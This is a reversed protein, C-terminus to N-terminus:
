RVGITLSVNEKKGNLLDITGKVLYTGDSVARGKNDTLNWSGVARKDTASVAAKDRVNITTVRNGLADYVYLSASKIGKGRWFFNVSGSQRYVPSPGATLEYRSQSVPAIISVGDPQNQQPIVRNSAAVSVFESEDRICTFDKWYNASEYAARYEQPVYLCVDNGIGVFTQVTVVPPYRGLSIIATLNPCSMAVGTGITAVDESFRITKLATCNFFAGDGVTTVGSPIDIFTLGTCGSFAQTKITIVSNPINISTLGTCGSFTFNEIVTISSPITISMLNKCDLFVSGGIATV